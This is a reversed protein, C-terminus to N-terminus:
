TKSRCTTDESKPKFGIVEREFRKFFLGKREERIKYRGIILDFPENGCNPCCDEQFYLTDPMLFTRCAKCFHVRRFPGYHYRVRDSDLLDNDPLPLSNDKM